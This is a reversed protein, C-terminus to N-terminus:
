AETGRVGDVSWLMVKDAGRVYGDAFARLLMDALLIRHGHTNTIIPHHRAEIYQHYEDWTGVFKAARLYEQQMFDHQALLLASREQSHRDEMQRLTEGTEM